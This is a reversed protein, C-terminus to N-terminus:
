SVVWSLLVSSVEVAAGSGLQQATVRRACSRGSGLMQPVHPSSSYM